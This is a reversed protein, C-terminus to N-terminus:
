TKEELRQTWVLQSTWGDEHGIPVPPLARQSAHRQGSVGDLISTLFSYFGCEEGRQLRCPWYRSLKVLCTSGIGTFM